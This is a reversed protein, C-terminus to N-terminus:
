SVKLTLRNFGHACHELPLRHDHRAFIISECHNQCRSTVQGRREQLAAHGERDGVSGPRGVPRATGLTGVSVTCDIHVDVDTM